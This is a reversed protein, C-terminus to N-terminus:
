HSPRAGNHPSPTAQPRENTSSANHSPPTGNGHNGGNGTPHSPTSHPTPHAAAAGCYAPIAAAGGAARALAQYATSGPFVGGHEFATCLGGGPLTSPGSPGVSRPSPNTPPATSPVGSAMGAVGVPGSGGSTRASNKAHSHAAPAGIVAHAISQLPGPLAQAYAAAALGSVSATAIGAAVLLRTSALAPVARTLRGWTRRVPRHPAPGHDLFLQTAETQGALEAFTAPGRAATLLAALDKLHDPVETAPLSGDLLRDLIASEALPGGARSEPISPM